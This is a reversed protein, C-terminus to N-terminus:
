HRIELESVMQLHLRQFHVQMEKPNKDLAGDDWRNVVITMLSVASSAAGALAFLLLDPEYNHTQDKVYGILPAGLTKGFNESFVYMGCAIGVNSPHVVLPVSAKLITPMVAEPFSLLILGVAPHVGTLALLLHASCTVACALAAVEMRRSTRDLVIGVMPGLVIPLFYNLSSLWAAKSTNTHWKEQIFAASVTDFLHEINSCLLHLLCLMWFALTLSTIGRIFNRLSLSHNVGLRPGQEIGPVQKKREIGFFPVGAMVGTFCCVTGVWFTERWGGLSIGVSVLVKGFWNSMNHSMETIGVALGLEAGSFWQACIAVQAVMIPGEGAGFLIRGGLAIPFSRSQIGLSFVLQGIFAITVSAIATYRAGLRDIFHGALFPTILNAWSVASNLLGYQAHTIPPDFADHVLHLELGSTMKYCVHIGCPMAAALFLVVWRLLPADRNGNQSSAGPLREYWSTTTM